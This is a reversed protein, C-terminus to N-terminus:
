SEETPERGNTRGGRGEITLPEAAGKRGVVVGFVGPAPAPRPPELFALLTKLAAPDGKKANRVLAQAIERMDDESVGKAFAQRLRVMYEGANDKM